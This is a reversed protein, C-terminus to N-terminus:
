MSSVMATCCTAPSGLGCLLRWDRVILGRSVVSVALSGYLLTCRGSTGSLAPQRCRASHSPGVPCHAGVRGLCPDELGSVVSVAASDGRFHSQIEGSEVEVASKM